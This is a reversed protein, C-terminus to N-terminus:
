QLRVEISGSIRELESFHVNAEEVTLPEDSGIYLVLTADDPYACRIRFCGAFDAPVDRLVHVESVPYQGLWKDSLRADYLRIEMRYKGLSGDYPIPGDGILLPEDERMMRVGYGSIDAYGILLSFGGADNAAVRVDQMGFHGRDQAAAAALEKVANWFLQEDRNSTVHVLYFRDEYQFGAYQSFLHEADDIDEKYQIALGDIEIIEAGELEDIRGEYNPFYCTVRMAESADEADAFFCEIKTYANPDDPEHEVVFVAGALEEPQMHGLLWGSHVLQNVEGFSDYRTHTREWYRNKAYGWVQFCGFTVAIAMVCCAAALIWRRWTPRPVGKKMGGPAADLLIQADIGRLTNFIDRNTM